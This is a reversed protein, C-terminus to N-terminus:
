FYILTLVDRPYITITKFSYLQLLLFFTLNKPELKLDM